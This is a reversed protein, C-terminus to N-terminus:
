PALFRFSDYHDDTYYIASDDGVVLRRAGRDASGPTEVTFERYFEPPRDPLIGERNQFTSGDQRYPYPGDAAILDLTVMAEPPMEDLHVISGSWDTPAEAAGPLDAPATVRVTAVETGAPGPPSDSTSGSSCAGLIVLAILGLVVLVYKTPNLILAHRRTM